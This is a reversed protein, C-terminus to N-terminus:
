IFLYFSNQTETKGTFSRWKEFYIYNLLALGHKRPVWVKFFSLLCQFGRRGGKSLSCNQLFTRTHARVCVCVYVSECVVLNFSYLMMQLDFEVLLISQTPIVGYFLVCFNGLHCSFFSSTHYVVGSPARVETYTARGKRAWTKM